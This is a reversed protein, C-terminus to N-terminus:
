KAPGRPSVQRHTANLIQKALEDIRKGRARPFNQRVLDALDERSIANIHEHIKRRQSKTM